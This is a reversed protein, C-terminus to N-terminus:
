QETLDIMWWFHISQEICFMLGGYFPTATKM